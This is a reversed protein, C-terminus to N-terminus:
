PVVGYPGGVLGLTNASDAVVLVVRNNTTVAVIAVTRGAAHLMDVYPRVATRFALAAPETDWVTDLVVAQAGNPGEILELRDGGWGAAPDAGAKPDGTRVLIGLQEEGLTDQLTVTWGAGLTSLLSAPVTVPVAPELIALKDPHLVQETTTPPNRFLADVGGFGGGSQYARLAMSLGANYAFMLPERLIAPTADLAASAAPDSATAVQALQDPTLAAQAWLSMSLVADGEVLASIALSRDGQDTASGKLASLNFTQDQLAHTFEHAYTIQGLPTTVGTGAVVYMRKSVDDYLGIVQGSYLALYLKVLSADQPILLLQKYARETADMLSKPDQLAIAQRLVVCLGAADLVERVVPTSATLGRIQEVKTEISQYLAANPDAAASAPPGSPAASPLPASLDCPAATAGPTAAAGAPTAAAGALPAVTLTATSGCGALSAALCLAIPVLLLRHAM